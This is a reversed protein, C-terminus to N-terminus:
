IESRAQNRSMDAFETPQQQEPQNRHPCDHGTGDMDRPVWGYPPFMSKQMIIALGCRKCAVHYHPQPTREAQPEM